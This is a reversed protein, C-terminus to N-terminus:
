FPIDDEFPDFGGANPPAQTANYAAPGSSGGNHGPRSQGSINGGAPGGDSKGSLMQMESVVIETSYRDSGDQAQWKRTQLKGEVYIKSGKTVYQGIIEALRDFAVCRIWETKEQKQGTAKDKWQESVAISFNVVAKGNPMQKIEPDQGLNGIGLFKNVGKM